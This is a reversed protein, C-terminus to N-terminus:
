WLTPDTAPMGGTPYTVRASESARGFHEFAYAAALGYDDLESMVSTVFAEGFVAVRTEHDRMDFDRPLAFPRYALHRRAGRGVIAPAPLRRPETLWRTLRRRDPRGPARRNGGMHHTFIAQERGFHRLTLDALRRFRAAPDALAFAEVLARALARSEDDMAPLLPGDLLASALADRGSRRLDHCRLAYLVTPVSDAFIGRNTRRLVDDIGDTAKELFALGFRAAARGALGYARMRFLGQQVQGIGLIAVIPWPYELRVLRALALYGAVRGFLNRNYRRLWRHALRALDAQEVEFADRLEAPVREALAARYAEGAEALDPGTLRGLDEGMLQFSGATPDDLRDRLRETLTRM